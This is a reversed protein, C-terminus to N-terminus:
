SCPYLVNFSWLHALLCQLLRPTLDNFAQFPSFPFIDLSTEFSFRYHKAALPPLLLFQDWSKSFATTNSYGAVRMERSTKREWKNRSTMLTDTKLEKWVLLNDGSPIAQEWAGEVFYIQLYIKLISIFYSKHYTQRETSPISIVKHLIIM